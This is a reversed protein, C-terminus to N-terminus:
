QTLGVGHGEVLAIGYDEVNHQAIGKILNAKQVSGGFLAFLTAYQAEQGGTGTITCNNKVATEHILQTTHPSSNWPFIADECATIVNVGNRACIMIIDKVDRILSMTTIICIDPKINKFDSEVQKADSVKIGIEGVGIITGVDLGIIAPNMDYTSLLEYGKELAYRIIIKDMKGCGYNSFTIHKKM